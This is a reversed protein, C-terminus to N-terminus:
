AEWDAIKLVAEETGFVRLTNGFENWFKSDFAPILEMPRRKVQEVSVWDTKNQVYVDDKWSGAPADSQKDWNAPQNNEQVEPQAEEEDASSSEAEPNQAMERLSDFINKTEFRRTEAEKSKKSGKKSKTRKKKSKTEPKEVPPLPVPQDVKERGDRVFDQVDVNLLQSPRSGASNTDDSLPAPM